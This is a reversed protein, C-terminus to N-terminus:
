QRFLVHLRYLLPDHLLGHKRLHVTSVKSSTGGLTLRPTRDPTRCGGGEGTMMLKEHSLDGDQTFWPFEAILVTHSAIQIALRCTNGYM